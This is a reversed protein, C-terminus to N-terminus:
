SPVDAVIAPAGGGEGDGATLDASETGRDYITGGAGGSDTLDGMRWWHKPATGTFTSMDLATGLHYLETADDSDLEEHWVCVEDMLGNSYDTYEDSPAKGVRWRQALVTSAVTCVSGDTGSQTGNVYIKTASSGRTCLIHTWTDDVWATATLAAVTVGGNSYESINGSTDAFGIANGWYAGNYYCSIGCRRSKWYSEAGYKGSGMTARGAAPIKVWMSVSYNTATDLGTGTGSAFYDTSGNFETSYYNFMYTFASSLTGTGGAAAIVIDKAGATGVPTVATISIASVTTVSTCAIGGVTVATVGVFNAGSITITTGGELPGSSPSVGSPIPVPNVYPAQIPTIITPPVFYPGGVANQSVPSDLYIIPVEDQIDSASLGSGTLANSATVVTSSITPAGGGEGDGATLNASETGRDYITGGAGGSDTLDGMRWWHKPQTGSFNSIDFANGSAYVEAVQLATLEEHWVCVEDMLGNSYDTNEDSPAKGVRWRQALVTSAVTCVSGDTGSQTGNVYIKTASSGRTCLIHTWTDDVWATATLAAVTVGGNSYESINGSTDAFGIANGWYAGNYYCSIGCRRSKWYSSSGYKGSGMTARGAAPIKVWMSVSYNTATDLGTGTGSAFYDTSGNFETSYVNSFTADLMKTESDDTTDGMRWWALPYGLKDKFAIMYNVPPTSWDPRYYARAAWSIIDAHPWAHNFVVCEDIQIDAFDALPPNAGSGWRWAGISWCRNASWTAGFGANIAVPTGYQNGWVYGIMNGSPYLTVTVTYWIDNSLTAIAMGVADGSSSDAAYAGLTTGSMYIFFATYTGAVDVNAQGFIARTGSPTSNLKVNCNLTMGNGGVTFDPGEGIPSSYSQNIGDFTVSNQNLVRPILGTGSNEQTTIQFRDDSAPGWKESPTTITVDDNIELRNTAGAVNYIYGPNGETDDPFDGMRWWIKLDDTPVSSSTVPGSIAAMNLSGIRDYVVEDTDTLDGLRWYHDAVTLGPTIAINGPMGVGAGSYILEIETATLITGNWVAFEDIIAVAPGAFGWANGLKWAQSYPSAHLAIGDGSKVFKGNVYLKLSDPDGNGVSTVVYHTWTDPASGGYQILSTNSNNADNEYVHVATGQFQILTRSSKWNSATSSGSDVLICGSTIGALPKIWVSYSYSIDGTIPLGGSATAFADNIGDFSMSRENSFDSASLNNINSAKGGLGSANTYLTAVQAATLPSDWIAMEDIMGYFYNSAPSIAITTVAPLMQGSGSDVSVGNVYLTITGAVLTTSTSTVCIQYWRTNEGSNTLPTPDLTISSPAENEYAVLQRTSGSFKLEYSAGSAHSMTLIRMDASNAFDTSQVWCSYTCGAIGPISIGSLTCTGTASTGNLDISTVNSFNAVPAPIPTIPTSAM